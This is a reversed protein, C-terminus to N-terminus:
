KRRKRTHYCEGWACVSKSCIIDAFTHVDVSRRDHIKEDADFQQRDLLIEPTGIMYEQLPYKQTTSVIQSDPALQCTDQLYRVMTVVDDVTVFEETGDIYNNNKYTSDMDANTRQMKLLDFLIQIREMSSTTNMALTLVTFWFAIPMTDKTISQNQKEMAATAVRDLLHGLQITFADGKLKVMAQRVLTVFQEYTLIIRAPSEMGDTTDSDNNKSLLEAAAAVVHQQISRFEHVTLESNATRLDDIELPDLHALNEIHDRLLNRYKSNYYGRVLWAIVLGIASLFITGMYDLFVNGTYSNKTKNNSNSSKGNDDSPTDKVHHASSVSSM